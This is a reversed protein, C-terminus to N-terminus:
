SFQFWHDDIFGFVREISILVYSIVMTLYPVCMCRQLASGAIETYKSSVKLLYSESPWM